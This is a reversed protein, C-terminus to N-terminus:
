PKAPAFTSLTLRGDIFKLTQKGVALGDGDAKVEPHRGDAALTMVNFTTKGATVTQVKVKEGGKADARPASGGVSVLLADAGSAKSYDVALAFDGAAWPLVMSLGIAMDRRSRKWM